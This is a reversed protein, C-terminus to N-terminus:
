FTGAQWKNKSQEQPLWSKVQNNQREKGDRGTYSNIELECKGSSGIVNNWNPRLPEGPNKQGISIFFESLKWEMKSHLFLNIYGVEGEEETEVNKANITLIAKPCPSMNESGDHNGREMNIVRFNYIGPELIKFNSEQEITSDWDLAGVQTNQNNKNNEEYFAM